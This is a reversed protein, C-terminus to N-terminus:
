VSARVLMFVLWGINAALVALMAVIQARRPLRTLGLLAVLIFAPAIVYFLRSSVYGWLLCIFPVPLAAYLFRRDSEPLQRMRMLGLPVLAWALGLLAAISKTINRFTFEVAFGSAGGHIYWDLYTYHYDLYVWIQVAISPLLAVLALLAINRARARWEVNEFLLVFGFIIGAVVSYEKWLFGIGLALANWLLMKRSPARLYLLTFLLSLVYFFQAGTETYLDVGYRLMPYSLAGILAAFVGLRKDGFFVYGLAYLVLAFALYFFAVEFLFAGDIGFVPSLAAVGLPALPKLLRSPYPGPYQGPPLGAFLKATEIYTTYDSVETFGFYHDKAVAALTCIALIIFIPLWHARLTAV